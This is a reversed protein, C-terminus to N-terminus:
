SDGQIISLSILHAPPDFENPGHRPFPKEIIRMLWFLLRRDVLAQSGLRNNEEEEESELFLTCPTISVRANWFSFLVQLDTSDPSLQNGRAQSERGLM